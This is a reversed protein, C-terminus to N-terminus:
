YGRTQKLEEAPKFHTPYRESIRAGPYFAHVYSPRAKICRSWDASTGAPPDGARVAGLAALALILAAAFLGAVRVPSGGRKARM